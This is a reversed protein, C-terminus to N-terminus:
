LYIMLNSHLASDQHCKLQHLHGSGLTSPCHRLVCVGFWRTFTNPPSYSQTIKLRFPLVTTLVFRNSVIAILIPWCPAIQCQHQIRRLNKLHTCVPTMSYQATPLKTLAVCPAHLPSQSYRVQARICKLRRGMPGELTIKVCTFREAMAAQKERWEQYNPLM